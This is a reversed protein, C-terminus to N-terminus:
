PQRRQRSKGSRSVPLGALLVGLIPFGSGLALIGFSEAVGIQGGLGAGMALVVPVTVSATTAGGADWGIGTFFESSILTLAFIALYLPVLIWLLPIGWVIMAFGAMTGAGVGASVILVMRWRPFVGVTVNEMTFGLAAVAPEVLTVTFGLGLAVLLLVIGGAAGPLRPGSRPIHLYSGTSPDFRERVFPVLQPAGKSEYLFHKDRTGDPRITETVLSLDFGRLTVADEARETARFLSPLSKGSQEGLRKLGTEVGTTFVTMGVICFIVGLVTEDPWPLRRRLVVLVIVILFLALPIIARAAVWASELFVSRLPQAPSSNGSEVTGLGQKAPQEGNTWASLEAASLNEAAWRDFAQQKGFLQKVVAEQDSRLFEVRTMPQPMKPLLLLGILLVTVVPILSAMAVAGFGSAEDEKQGSMRSVGVGLALMLPVTVDSTTIAGADWALGCLLALNPETRAWITVAVVAAASILLMPKVSWRLLLRLMGIAFAIGVGAGIAGILLLSRHGLLAFLLPADWPTVSRGINQLVVISPEAATALLGMLFVVLLIGGITLRRPLSLGCLEGVPMVALMLGELFAALGVIVMVVGVAVQPWERVPTGLVVVQVALLYLVIPLASRLQFSIRTWVYEAIMGARQRLSLSIAQSGAPATPLGGSM